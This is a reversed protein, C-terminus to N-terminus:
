LWCQFVNVLWESGFRESLGGFCKVHRLIFVMRGHCLMEWESLMCHWECQGLFCPDNSLHHNKKDKFNSLSNVYILIENCFLVKWWGTKISGHTWVFDNWFRGRKDKQYCSQLFLVGGPYAKLMQLWSHKSHSDNWKITCKRSFIQRYIDIHNSCFPVWNAVM